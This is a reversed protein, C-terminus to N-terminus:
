NEKWYYIKGSRDVVAEIVKFTTEDETLFYQAWIRFFNSKFVFKSEQYNVITDSDVGFDEFVVSFNGSTFIGDDGMDEEDPGIRFEMIDSLLSDDEIVAKLAEENATNINIKFENGRYITVMDKIESYIDRTMGEVLFLEEMFEFGKDGKTGRYAIIKESLGPLADDVGLWILNDKTLGAGNLNLKAMEDSARYFVTDKGLHFERTTNWSENLSDYDNADKMLESIMKMVGAKALYSGKINDAEYKALKIDSSARFSLVISLISLIILVWLTFILISGKQRIM